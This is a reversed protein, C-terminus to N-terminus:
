SSSVFPCPRLGTPASPQHFIHPSIQYHTLTRPTPCSVGEVRRRVNSQWSGLARRSFVRQDLRGNRRGCSHRHQSLWHTSNHHLPCPLNFSGSVDEEVVGPGDRQPVRNQRFSAEPHPPDMIQLRSLLEWTPTTRQTPPRRHSGATRSPPTCGVDHNTALLYFTRKPAPTQDCLKKGALGIVNVCLTIPPIGTARDLLWSRDRVHRGEPRHTSVM